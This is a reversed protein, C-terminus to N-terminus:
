SDRGASAQILETPLLGPVQILTHLPTQLWPTLPHSTPLPFDPQLSSSGYQRLVSKFSKPFQSRFAKAEESAHLDFHSKTIIGQRPDNHFDMFINASVKV